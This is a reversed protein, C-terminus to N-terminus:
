VKEMRKQEETSMAPIVVLRAAIIPQEARAPQVGLMQFIAEVYKPTRTTPCQTGGGAQNTALAVPVVGAQTLADIFNIM